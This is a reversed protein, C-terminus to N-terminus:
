GLEIFFMASLRVLSFFGRFALVKFCYIGNINVQAFLKYMPELIFEVFSRQASGHPPRKTFKRTKANFYMDGWLRRAFEKENIGGYTDAYLNAFSRLTFCVSFQSSAFCVNGLLPSVAQVNEDESYM